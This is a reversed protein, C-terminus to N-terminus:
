NEVGEKNSSLINNINIRRRLHTHFHQYDRSKGRLGVTSSDHLSHKCSPLRTCLLFNERKMMLSILLFDGKKFM